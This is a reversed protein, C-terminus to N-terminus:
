VAQLAKNANEFMSEILHEESGNIQRDRVKTKLWAETRVEREGASIRVKPYVRDVNPLPNTDEQDFATKIIARLIDQCKESTLDAFGAKSFIDVINTALKKYSKVPVPFDGHSSSAEIDFSMIKYPVPTEKDNLPIVNKYNIIFEHECSTRKEAGVLEKTKKYPLAIWGSPSVERLHFFRLLPPISAEYLEIFCEKFKYGNKILRRERIITGTGDDEMIDHYWFNKVKNYAPVNAFKILIFRHLKGADFEYLKKREILKCETISKEYYPGVKAKLHEQFAVKMKQGWANPVKVYFFPQYEEVTISAKQGQENIGFMQIAFTAKDRNVRKGSDNDDSGDGVNKDNYINFEFLKFTHEM